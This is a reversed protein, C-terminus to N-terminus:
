LESNVLEEPGAVSMTSRQNLLIGLATPNDLFAQMAVEEVLVESVRSMHKGHLPEQFNDESFAPGPSYLLAYSPSLGCSM